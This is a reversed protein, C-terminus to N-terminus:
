HCHSKQNTPFRGDPGKSLAQTTRDLATWQNQELKTEIQRRQYVSKKDLFM